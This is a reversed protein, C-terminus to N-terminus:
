SIRPNTSHSFDGARLFTHGAFRGTDGELSIAGSPEEGSLVIVAVSEGQKRARCEEIWASVFAPLSETRRTAVLIIDAQDAEQLSDSRCRADELTDFRWLVRCFEIESHLDRTLLDLLGMARHGAHANEYLVAVKLTISDNDHQPRIEHLAPAVRELQAPFETLCNM